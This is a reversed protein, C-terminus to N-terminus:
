VVKHVHAMQIFRNMLIFRLVSLSIDSAVAGSLTSIKVDFNLYKRIYADVTTNYYQKTNMCQAVQSHKLLAKKLLM